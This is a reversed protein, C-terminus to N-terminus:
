PQEGVEQGDVGQQGQRIHAVVASEVMELHEREEEAQLQHQIYQVTGDAGTVQQLM